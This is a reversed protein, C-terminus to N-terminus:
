ATMPYSIQNTGEDAFFNWDCCADAPAEVLAAFEKCYVSGTWTDSSDGSDRWLRVGLVDGPAFQRQDFPLDVYAEVAPDTSGPVLVDLRGHRTYSPQRPNDGDRIIDVTFRFVANAEVLLESTNEVIFTGRFALPVNNEDVPIEPLVYGQSQMLRDSNPFEFTPFRGFDTESPITRGGWDTWPKLDTWPLGTALPLKIQPRWEGSEKGLATDANAKAPDCVMEGIVELGAQESAPPNKTFYIRGDHAEDYHFHADHRINAITFIDGDKTRLKEDDDTLIVIDGIRAIHNPPAVGDLNDRRRRKLGEPVDTIYGADLTGGDIHWMARYDGLPTTSRVRVFEDLDGAEGDCLRVIETSRNQPTEEAYRDDSILRIAWVSDQSHPEPNPDQSHERFNWNDAEAPGINKLEPEQTDPNHEALEAFLFTEDDDARGESELREQWEDSNRIPIVGSKNVNRLRLEEDTDHVEAQSTPDAGLSFSGREAREAAWSIYVERDKDSDAPSPSLPRHLNLTYKTVAQAHDAQWAVETIAGDPEIGHAGACTGTENEVSPAAALAAQVLEAARADLEHKAAADYSGNIMRLSLDPRNFVLTGSEITPNAVEAEYLYHANQGRREYAFTLEPPILEVRVPEGDKTQPLVDIETDSLIGCIKKTRVLGLDRDIIAWGRMFPVRESDSGGVNKYQKKEGRKDEGKQFYAGRLRPKAPKGDRGTESITDLVPLYISNRSKNDDSFRGTKPIRWLKGVTTRAAQRSASDDIDVFGTALGRGTDYGQLYSVSGLAKVQGDSPDYACAELTITKQDILRAGVVKVYRPVLPFTKGTELNPGYIPPVRPRSGSGAPEIRFKGDHRLALTYGAPALLERLAHIPRKAVWDVNRPVFPNEALAGADLLNGSEGLAEVCKLVLDKWSYPKLSNLSDWRLKGFRDLANAYLTIEGFREWLIRKDAVRVRYIASRNDADQERTYDLVYLSRFTLSTSPTNGTFNQTVTVDGINQLQRFAREALVLSGTSATLGNSLSFSFEIASLTEGNQQWTIEAM